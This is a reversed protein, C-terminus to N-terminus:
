KVSELTLTTANMVILLVSPEFRGLAIATTVGTVRHLICLSIPYRYRFKLLDLDKASLLVAISFLLSESIKLADDPRSARIALAEIPNGPM